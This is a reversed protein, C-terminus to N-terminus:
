SMIKLYRSYLWIFTASIILGSLVSLKPDIFILPLLLLVIQSIAYFHIGKKQLKWMLMVGVLSGLNFISSLLFFSRGGSQLFDLMTEVDMGPFQVFDDSEALEPIANYILFIVFNSFFSLGSGIFSLIAIFTLGDPRVHKQQQPDIYIQNPETM